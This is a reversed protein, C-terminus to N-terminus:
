PKPPAFGPQYDIKASSRLSKLRTEMFKQGETQRMAQVAIARAEDANPAAPQRSVVVSAVSRPGVPIIFPETTPLSMLKGYLDHPIVATNMRNKTRNFAIGSQTLAAAVAELSHADALRKQTTADTPTAFLIQDLDWMERKAFMEPRSAQFAAIEEPTPLKATNLQKSALMSILLDETARRQRSVFEPSKDIGDNKAQQALLRRDVMAQLVQARVKNKDSNPPVNIRGLEANLEATTIEEGNVVAVTQGEAKRDCGSILCAALSAAILIKRM